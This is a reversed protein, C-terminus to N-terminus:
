ITGDTCPPKVLIIVGVVESKFRERKYLMVAGELKEEPKGTVNGGTAIKNEPM